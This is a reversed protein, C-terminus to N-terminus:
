EGGDLEDDDNDDEDDDNDEEQSCFGESLKGDEAGWREEILVLDDSDDSDGDSDSDETYEFAVCDRGFKQADPVGDVEDGGLGDELPVSQLRLQKLDVNPGVKVGPSLICGALLTSDAFLDIRTENPNDQAQVQCRHHLSFFNFLLSGTPLLSWGKFVVCDDAVFCKTLKCGEEITVNKGLTVEDLCANKGVSSGEGVFSKTIRAGEAVKGLIVSFQSVHASPAVRGETSVYYGGRQLHCDRIYMDITYPYTQFSLM